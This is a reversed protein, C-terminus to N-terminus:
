KVGKTPNPGWEYFDEPGYTVKYLSKSATHYVVIGEPNMFGPSAQSGTAFLMDRVWDINETSFEGTFLEPVVGLGPVSTFDADKWRSTNFLSFRKDGKVLGYGRQIGSGWWEGFHRGIGLTKVLGEANSQVWRAFGFNDDGPTILRKRSQACIGYYTDFPQSEDKVEAVVYQDQSYDLDPNLEEILVAANTGDIKESIICDRRLRAISPFGEFENM